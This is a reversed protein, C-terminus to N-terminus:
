IVGRGKTSDPIEFVHFVLSGCATQYTGIFNQATASQAPHGTGLTLFTRHVKPHAADVLGWMCPQGNQTQISLIETGDPMDIGCLGNLMLPFKWITKM